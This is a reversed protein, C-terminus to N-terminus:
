FQIAKTIYRWGMGIDANKKEKKKIKYKILKYIEMDFTRRGPSGEALEWGMGREKAELLINGM